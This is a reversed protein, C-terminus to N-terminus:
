KLKIVDRNTKLPYIGKEAKLITNSMTSSCGLVKKAATTKVTGLQEALQANEEGTSRWELIPVIVNMLIFIQVRNRHTCELLM